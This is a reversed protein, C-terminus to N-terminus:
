QIEAGLKRLKNNFNEYGRNILNINNVKSIGEAALAATVYTFGARLDPITIEKAKLTRPGVIVASHKHNKQGFRCLQSGLCESFLQIQAGMANLENTYGFRDEYVTEHIVSMGTSQTLALVFPQQWDTMFGPHVGTEIAIPRLVKEDRWFTIAEDDISFGGGIQRYKNLFTLMDQQQANVVRIRGGTVLAACAWSAAELRDPIAKHDYGKLTNVGIVRITRDTDVSIISGMKQLICILDIIEPEVAANKLETTGEALV